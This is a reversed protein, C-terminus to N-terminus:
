RLLGNQSYSGDDSKNNQFFTPKEGQNSNCYTSITYQIITTLVVNQIIYHTNIQDNVKLPGQLRFSNCFFVM